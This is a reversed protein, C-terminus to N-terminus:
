KFQKILKKELKNLNILTPTIDFENVIDYLYIDKYPIVSYTGHSGDKRVLTFYAYDGKYTDNILLMHSISDSYYPSNISLYFKTSNKIANKLDERTIM